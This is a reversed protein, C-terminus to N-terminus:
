SRPSHPSQAKPKPSQSRLDYITLRLDVSPLPLTPRELPADTKAKPKPNTLIQVVREPNSLTRHHVNGLTAGPSVGQAPSRLGTPIRSASKQDRIASRPDGIESRPDRIESRPDGIM